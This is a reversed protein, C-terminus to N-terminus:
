RIFYTSAKFKIKGNNSSNANYMDACNQAAKQDAFVTDISIIKVGLYDIESTVIYVANKAITDSM